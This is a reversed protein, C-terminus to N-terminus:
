TRILLFTTPLFLTYCLPSTLTFRKVAEFLTFIPDNAPKHMVYSQMVEYGTKRLYRNGRKSIHRNNACFKGSQYPPADIGAYAILARKSHFRRVDGIEAILRPALTDGICPMERVLSYEPLTKALAQMQALIADRSVEVIKLQPLSTRQWVNAIATDRRKQGNAIIRGFARKEWKLSTPSTIIGCSLTQFNTGGQM